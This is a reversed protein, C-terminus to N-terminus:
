SKFPRLGAEDRTVASLAEVSMEGAKDGALVKAKELSALVRELTPLPVKHGLKERLALMLNVDTPYDSRGPSIPGSEGKIGGDLKFGTSGDFDRKSIRTSYNILPPAPTITETM